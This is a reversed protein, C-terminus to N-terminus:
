LSAREKQHIRAKQTLENGNLTGDLVNVAKMM